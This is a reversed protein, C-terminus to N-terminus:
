LYSVPLCLVRLHITAFVGQISNVSLKKL